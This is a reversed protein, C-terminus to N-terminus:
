GLWSCRPITNKAVANDGTVNESFEWYVWGGVFHPSTPWPLPVLFIFPPIPSLDEHM